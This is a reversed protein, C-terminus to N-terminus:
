YGFLLRFNQFTNKNLVKLGRWKQGPNERVRSPFQLVRLLFAFGEVFNCLGRRLHMVRETIYFSGKLICPFKRMNILFFLLVM